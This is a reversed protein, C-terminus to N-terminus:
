MSEFPASREQTQNHGSVEGYSAGDLYNEFGARQGGNIRAMFQTGSPFTNTAKLPMFAPVAYLLSEPIRMESTTVTPLDEYYKQDVASSVETNATNIQIGVATVQVTETVDGVQLTMDQRFTQGSDLRIGVATFVQFGPQELRMNYTGIILPPTTYNGTGSTQVTTVVGTNVNIVQIESGPIVAGQPDMVIGTIIGRDAQAFLMATGLLGCLVLAGFTHAHKM